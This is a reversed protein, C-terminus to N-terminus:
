LHEVARAAKANGSVPQRVGGVTVRYWHAVLRGVRTINLQLAANIIQNAPVCQRHHHPGVFGVALETPVNGAICRGSFYEFNAKVVEKAGSCIVEGAINDVVLRM